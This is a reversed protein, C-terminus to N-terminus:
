SQNNIAKRLVQSPKFKLVRRASITIEEGTRPNRGRRAKKERVEFNGFGSVKVSEGKVLTEKIIEFLDDVVSSTVRRPFGMKAQVASVIDAKTM